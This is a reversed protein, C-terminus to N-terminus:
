ACKRAKNLRDAKCFLVYGVIFLVVLVSLFFVLLLNSPKTFFARLRYFLPERLSSNPRPTRM